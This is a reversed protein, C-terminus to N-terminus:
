RVFDSIIFDLIANKKDDDLDKIADMIKRDLTKKPGRKIGKIPQKIRKITGDEQLYEYTKMEYAGDTNRTRPRGRQRHEMEKITNVLM